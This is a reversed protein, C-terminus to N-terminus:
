SGRERERERERERGRGRERERGVERGREGRGKEGRRDDGLCVYVTCVVFMEKHILSVNTFTVFALGPHHHANPKITEGTERSHHM